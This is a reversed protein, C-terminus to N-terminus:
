QPSQSEKRWFEVVPNFFLGAMSGKLIVRMKNFFRPQGLMRMITLLTRSTSRWAFEGGRKRAVYIRNRYEYFYNALRRKDEEYEIGSGATRLHVARSEGVLYGEFESTIRSTYEIDDSWIFMEPIPLGVKLIAARLILVSTFTCSWVRVVGQDLHDKWAMGSQTGPLIPPNDSKGNELFVNSCFLGAQPFFGRTKLMAELADKDPVVDDDMLWVWEAGADLARGIGTNFGGSCGTNEHLLCLTCDKQEALWEATGDNSSNDVVVVGCPVTQTRLAKLCQQLRSLRNYTVVVAVVSPISMPKNEGAM